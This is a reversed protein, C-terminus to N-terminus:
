FRCTWLVYPYTVGSGKTSQKLYEGPFLHAYGFGLQLRASFQYSAQIDIEDGVRSSTAKPNQVSLAGGAAYLADLRNALWFAHYDVNLTWRSAPKWEIGGMADRMNRWGVRDTIGYKSHNTPFLQDFTRRRGDRPDDDGSAYNYEAVLHPMREKKWPAYGLLWHGAWARIVDTAARGSQFALELSYDLRHPLKGAARLGYTYVDLDGLRGREDRVSTNTKWFFYPQVESGRLLGDFSSYFGYLKNATRPRDFEGNIPVVLASAFLDLRVGPRAYSLRAADFTRSVNSWNSPGVLREEGFSLEQRGFRFGWSGKEVSGLEAYGQRLDFTNAVGNPVPKRFGPAQADQAQVFFRLEQLPEVALDLRLRHLYYGDNHGPIYGIGTFGEARGRVEAGAKLWGPLAQDRQASNGPPNLLQGELKVTLIACCILVSLWRIV